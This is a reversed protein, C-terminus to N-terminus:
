RRCVLLFGYSLSAGRRGYWISGRYLKEWLREVQLPDEGVLLDQFGQATAHSTPAQVIARMVTPSSLAEGLGSIGEDTHIRLIFADLSSDAATTSGARLVIPELRTIRM